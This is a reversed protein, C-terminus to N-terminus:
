ASTGTLKVQVKINTGAPIAFKIRDASGVGVTWGALPNTRTYVAGPPVDETPTTGALWPQFTNTAGGVTVKNTLDTNFITIEKVKAPTFAVGNPMHLSGDGLNITTPAGSSAITVETFCVMDAQNNGVGNAFNNKFTDFSPALQGYSTTIRASTNVAVASTIVDAM